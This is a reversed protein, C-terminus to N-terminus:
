ERVFASVGLQQNLSQEMRSLREALADDRCQHAALALHAFCRFGQRELHSLMSDVLEDRATLETTGKVCAFTLCPLLAQIFLLVCVRVCARVCVSVCVCVCM